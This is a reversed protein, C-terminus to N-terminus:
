SQRSLWRLDYGWFTSRRANVRYSLITFGKAGLCTHSQIMVGRRELTDAHLMNKELSASAGVGRLCALVDLGPALQGCCATPSTLVLWSPEIEIIRDLYMVYRQGHLLVGVTPAALNM